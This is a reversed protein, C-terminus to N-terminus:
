FESIIKSLTDQLQTQQGPAGTLHVTYLVDGMQWYANLSTYNASIVPSMVLVPAGSETNITSEEFTAYQQWTSGSSYTGAEALLTASFAIRIDGDLYGARIVANEPFHATVEVHYRSETLIDNAFSIGDSDAHVLWPASELPNFVQVGIEQQCQTWTDAYIYAVNWLQSSLAREMETMNQFREMHAQVQSHCWVGSLDTGGLKASFRYGSEQSGCATETLTVRGTKGESNGTVRLEGELMTIKVYKLDIYQGILAELGDVRQYLEVNLLGTTEDADLTAIQYALMYTSLKDKINELESLSLGSNQASGCIESLIANLAQDDTMWAINDVQQATDSDFVFLVQEGDSQLLIERDECRLMVSYAEEIGKTQRFDREQLGNLREVLETIQTDSLMFHVTEEAYATVQAWHVQQSQLTSTISQPTRKSVPNTLLCVALSACAAASVLIAWFGPKRWNALNKIRGKTNGEGFALPTGAIVRRGTALSLLSAAYDARIDKGAKRIVAEDCSMEMDKCALVFALWVLPNFWHLTLALFALAKAAHDLRRIHYQEHLIIYEQEKEALSCPLYIRPRFLGIVFPSGIDDATYINGRLPVATALKKRLKLYSIGSYILMAAIGAAWVYQGFLLWVNQRNTSVVVPFGTEDREQTYVHQIGSGGDLVDGVAQYAAVSADLFSIDKDSLEYSESVPTLEPMVSVPLQISVPCLLRLLVLSWLAYSFVRPTRKLLMRALMVALIVISATKSMDLVYMFLEDLM